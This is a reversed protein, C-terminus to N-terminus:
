VIVCQTEAHCRRQRVVGLAGILGVSGEVSYSFSPEPQVLSDLTAADELILGHGVNRQRKQTKTQPSGVFRGCSDNKAPRGNGGQSVGRPSEM